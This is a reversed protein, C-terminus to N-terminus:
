ECLIPQLGLCPITSNSVNDPGTASPRFDDVGIVKREPYLVIPATWASDWSHLMGNIFFVPSCWSSAPPQSPATQKSQRHSVWSLTNELECIYLGDPPELGALVWPTMNSVHTAPLSDMDVIIKMCQVDRIFSRIGNSFDSWIRASFSPQM